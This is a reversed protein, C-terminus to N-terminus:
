QLSFALNINLPHSFILPLAQIQVTSLVKCSHPPPLTSLSLSVSIQPAPTPTNFVKHRRFPHIEVHNLAVSLIWNLAHAPVCWSFFLNKIFYISSFATSLILELNMHFSQSEAPPVTRNPCSLPGLTATCMTSTILQWRSQVVLSSVKVATQFVSRFLNAIMLFNNRM